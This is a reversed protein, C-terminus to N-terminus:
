FWKNIILRYDFIKMKYKLNLKLFWYFIEFNLLM